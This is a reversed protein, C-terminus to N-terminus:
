VIFYQRNIDHDFEWDYTFLVLDVPVTYSCKMVIRGGALTVKVDKKTVPLALQLAKEYIAKHVSAATTRRGAFKAQEVMFDQLESTAMKVPVMKLLVLGGFGVLAIWIICGVMGEGVQRRMRM